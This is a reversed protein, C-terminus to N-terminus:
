ETDNKKELTETLRTIEAFDKKRKYTAKRLDNLLSENPKKQM